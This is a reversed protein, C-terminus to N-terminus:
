WENKLLLHLKHVIKEAKGDADAAPLKAHFMLKSPLQQQEQDPGGEFTTDDQLEWDVERGTDGRVENRIHRLNEAVDLTM